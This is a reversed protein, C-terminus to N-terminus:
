TGTARQRGRAAQRRVRYWVGFLLDGILMLWRQRYWTPGVLWRALQLYCLIREPSPLAAREIAVVYERLVRWNPFTLGSPKTTDWWALNRIGRRYSYAEPHDRRDFLYAPKQYIRSRLAIEGLFTRDGGPYAGHLGTTAMLERRMLGFLAFCNHQQCVMDGFRKHAQESSMRMRTYYQDYTGVVEGNEDVQRAKSFVLGVEPRTDLVEVANELFEPHLVDDHAAWKFYQSRSQQFVFNYNPAAGLNQSQRVYIIRSDRDVYERCIPETRDSSANDSIILEFDAFTQALISDVASQLYNEGNFVPLGISVRPKKARGPHTM